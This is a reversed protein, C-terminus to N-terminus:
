LLFLVVVRQSDVIRYFLVIRNAAFIFFQPAFLSGLGGEGWSVQTKEDLEDTKGLNFFAPSCCVHLFSPPREKAPSVGALQSPSASPDGM